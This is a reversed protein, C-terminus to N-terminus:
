RSYRVLFARLAESLTEEREDARVKAKVWLDEPVRIVRQVMPKKPM